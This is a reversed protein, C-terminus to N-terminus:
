SNLWSSVASAAPSGLHHGGPLELYDVSVGNRELFRATSRGHQAAVVEDDIGHVVLVPTKSAAFGPMDYRVTDAHLLWGSVVYVGAFADVARGTTTAPPNTRSLALALAIAGGQSYGGIVVQNRRLGRATCADAIDCELQTISANIEAEIPGNENSRFWVPGVDTTMASRPRVVVCETTALDTLRDDPLAPDDEHGHLAIIMQVDGVAPGRLRASDTV